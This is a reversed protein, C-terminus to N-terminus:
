QFLSLLIGDCYWDGGDYIQFTAYPVDASIKWDPGNKESCWEFKVHIANEPIEKESLPFVEKKHPDIVFEGGDFCGLEDFVAGRFEACDDSYGFIVVLGNEAAFVAEEKSIENGYERGDLKAALKVIEERM